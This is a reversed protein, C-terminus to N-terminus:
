SSAELTNAWYSTAGRRPSGVDPLSSKSSSSEHRTARARRSSPIRALWTPWSSSLAGGRPELSPMTRSWALVVFWTTTVELWSM